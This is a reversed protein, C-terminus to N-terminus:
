VYFRVATHETTSLQTANTCHPVQVKFAPHVCTDLSDVITAGYGGLLSADKGELSMVDVQDQKQTTQTTTHPPHQHHQQKM